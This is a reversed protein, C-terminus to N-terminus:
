KESIRSRSSLEALFKEDFVKIEGEGSKMAIEFLKKGLEEDKKHKCANVEELVSEINDAIEDNTYFGEEIYCDIFIL